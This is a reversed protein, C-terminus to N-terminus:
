HISITFYISYIFVYSKCCPGCNIKRVPRFLTYVLNGTNDFVDYIPFHKANWRNRCCRGFCNPKQKSHKVNGILKEGDDSFISIGRGKVGLYKPDISMACALLSKCCQFITMNERAIYFISSGGDEATATKFRNTFGRHSGFMCSDFKTGRENATIAHTWNAQTFSNFQPTGRRNGVTEPFPFIDLM